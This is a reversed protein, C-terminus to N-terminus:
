GNYLYRYVAFGVAAIYGLPYVWKVVYTDLHGALTERNNAMMWQLGVNFVIILGTVVFMWQLIFDLFTLYGLKPLSDSIMWNFAVFVLLNAGAVEIRKRYDALLLTAWSVFMLVLMPTFIRTSYYMIHRHGEFGLRAMSSDKGTIGPTISVDMAAKNLIWEEEGLRPGLGYADDMVSYRVLDQPFASVIEFYFQQRDFPFRRFDFHPAQLTLSSKELYRARGDPFVAVVSQHIWRKSQQNQIVFLPAVTNKEAALELFRDTKYAQYNRGIEDPSYALAPDTWEMRITAVAGYNESKQDVSTIQDISIGVQVELPNELTAVGSQAGDVLFSEAQASLPLCCLTSLLCCFLFDTLLRMTMAKTM